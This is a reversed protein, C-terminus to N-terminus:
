CGMCRKSFPLMEADQVFVLRRLPGLAWELKKSLTAYWKELLPTSKQQRLELLQPDHALSQTCLGMWQGDLEKSVSPLQMALQSETRSGEHAQLTNHAGM